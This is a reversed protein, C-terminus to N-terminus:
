EERLWGLAEEKTMFFRQNAKGSIGMVFSALMRSVSNLGFLALKKVKVKEGIKEWIKRAEPSSKGANNLDILYSVPGDILVELRNHIEIQATALQTTAEGIAIVYIINKDILSVRNEGIRFENESVQKIEISESM